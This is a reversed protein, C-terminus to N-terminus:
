ETESEEKAVYLKRINDLEMVIDKSLKKVRKQSDATMVQIGITTEAEGFLMMELRITKDIVHSLVWLTIKGEKYKSLAEGKIYRCLNINQKKSEIITYKGVTQVNKKVDIMRQRWNEKIIYRKVTTPSIKCKSAVYHITPKEQFATWMETIKSEAIKQYSKAM